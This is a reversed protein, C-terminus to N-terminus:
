STTTSVNLIVAVAMDEDKSDAEVKIDEERVERSDEESIEKTVM